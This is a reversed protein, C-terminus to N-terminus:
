STRRKFYPKLYIYILSILMLLLPNPEPVKIVNGPPAVNSIEAVIKNEIAKQFDNFNAPALLFANSGNVVEQSYEDIVRQDTTIVIGNIREIGAAIANNSATELNKSLSISTDIINM